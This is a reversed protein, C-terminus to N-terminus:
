VSALAHKFYKALKPGPDCFYNSVMSTGYLMTCSSKLKEIEVAFMFQGHHIEIADEMPIVEMTVTFGKEEGKVGYGNGPDFFGAFHSRFEGHQSQFPLMTICVDPPVSVKQLSGMIYFHDKQLFLRYDETQVKSFFKEAPIDRKSMHIIEDQRRRGRYCSNEFTLDVGVLLSRGGAGFCLESDKLPQGDPHYLLPTKSHFSRIDDEGLVHEHTERIRIQNIANQSQDPDLFVPALQPHAEVWVEGQYGAPITDFFNVGDLLLRGQLNIRGSSSKNNACGVVDMPLSFSLPSKILYYHGVELPQDVNLKYFAREDVLQRITQGKKPLISGPMRYIEHTLPVDLSAPQICKPPVGNIWGRQMLQKLEVHGYTMIFLLFLKLSLCTKDKIVPYFNVFLFLQILIILNNM